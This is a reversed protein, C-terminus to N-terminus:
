AICRIPSNSRAESQLKRDEHRDAAKWLRGVHAQLRPERRRARDVRHNLLRRRPLDREGARDIAISASAASRPPTRAARTPRSSASSARAIQRRPTFKLLTRGQEAQGDALCQEKADVLIGHESMRGIPLMAPVAGPRSCMARAM